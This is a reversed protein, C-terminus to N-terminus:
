IIRLDLEKEKVDDNILKLILPTLDPENATQGMERVATKYAAKLQRYDKATKPLELV